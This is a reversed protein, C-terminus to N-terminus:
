PAPKTEPARTRVRIRGPQDSIAGLFVFCMEDTTQEGFLVVRPPQNPNNPNDASNDYHAIVELKTGAPLRLPEKFFYTEQWNYDWPEIYLLTKPEGNPVTYTVRIDKGLLHMHALVSLITAEQELWVQGKVEFHKAGAPIFLFRGPLVLTQLRHQIPEDPKAFYLAIQLRDREVKGTRHYHVQLLIDSDKPLYYAVGRPLYHPLLGPAWGGFGSRPAVGRGFGMAVTYGPGTDYGEPHKPKAREEQELKDALGKPIIMNLTHHVVRRNSPRVEFAKIFKDETLHHRLIFCRFLDRGEPGIIMEEPLELVLDPKGLYWDDSWARPPPADKPDGEPMGAEVWRALTTIEQETLRRENHFVNRPERVRWPPMWHNATFERIDPGWKVAQRYTLLSFPAVNNPRHCEQCHRQLIPLVDRYYTVEARSPTAPQTRKQASPIECGYARTERVTVPKGQLHEDLAAKVHQRTIVPRPKLRAYYQDDIAGRYLLRRQSDLIVAQPTLTAGTARALAQQHDLWLPLAVKAEQLMEKLSDITEEPNSCVLFFAVNRPKYSKALDAVVPLYNGVMPCEASVFVLVVAQHTACVASLSWAKGELDRVSVDAVTPREAPVGQPEARSGPLFMLAAWALLGVSIGIWWSSPKESM